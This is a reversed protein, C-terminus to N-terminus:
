LYICIILLCWKYLEPCFNSCRSSSRKGVDHLIILRHILHWIYVTSRYALFWTRHHQHPTWRNITEKFTLDLKFISMFTRVSWLRRPIVYRGLNLNSSSPSLLGRSMLTWRCHCTSIPCCCFDLSAELNTLM